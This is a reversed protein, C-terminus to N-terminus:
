PMPYLGESRVVWKGNQPFGPANGKPAGDWGGVMLGIASLFSSNVPMYAPCGDPEAPRRVYGQPMFQAKPANNTIIDVATEYEGLRAATNAAQGMSWSVWRDLGNSSRRNIENFTTRMIDVDILPTQPVYGLAYITSAPVGGQRDYIHPETEIEVYKGQVITPKSLKNLIETWQADAGLGLRVRWEQAVQLGYYWLALEFTPNWTESESSNESSAKLPPGLVYRDNIKDYSAYSALFKGTELVMDKYQELTENTPKARYVLECLYAPNPFNWIIFPNIGGPTPRGDIGAMKPWRAGEWGKAKADALALPLINQYWSLGKELLDVHGFQYFHASHILYVESNHKGYWTPTVLGCESPPFSGSYNVKLLYQSQVIRRELEKARSDTSLSLDVVGGKTWFDKWSEVSSAHVNNFSLLKNVNSSNPTFECSFSVRNSKQADAQLRFDHPAVEKLKAIGDWLISVNYNLDDVTRQLLASNNNKNIVSTTHAEPQDWIFPPKNKVSARYAYPFRFRIELEGTSLLISHVEASVISRDPHAVTVVDVAKGDLLYRSTVVGTWMDLTQNISSLDKPCLERGKYIFSIQGLAAPHPNIRFYQGEPSKERAAFPVKRGHFDYLTMTQDFTYGETNPFSHWAWASLTETPIGKERYLDDFNQLGTADVTFAFDGNGISLASEPDLTTVHVSHRRVLAERDIPADNSVGWISSAFLIAAAVTLFQKIM